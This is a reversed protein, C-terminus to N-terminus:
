RRRRRGTSATPPRRSAPPGSASSAPTSCRRRRQGAPLRDRDDGHVARPVRHHHPLRQARRRRQRLDAAPRASVVPRAAAPRRHVVPRGARLRLGRHRGDAHAPRRPARRADPLAGPAGGHHDNEPLHGHTLVGPCPSTAHRVPRRRRGARRTMAVPMIAMSEYWSTARSDYTGSVSLVDGKKVAVRWNAPTATMSVDWSVAGAPEFYHARSRFLECRAGAARSSSTPGCAAPICTARPASSRATTTSSGATARRAAAPVANPATTPSPSAGTTGPARSRTSCRTPAQRGDVDLWQTEVERMGRAAQRRAPHLGDGLHHLGADADPTLNHIMHNLLWRDRRATAGASARRCRPDHDEGGGGGVDPAHRRPQGRAVGRPAPPHRRRPPVKGDVYTSTRAQVVHDLRPGPPLLDDDAVLDHEPGPAITVPGWRFRLHRVGDAAAHHHDHGALHAGHHHAAHAAPRCARPRRARLFSLICRM